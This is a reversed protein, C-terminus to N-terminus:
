PVAHSTPEFNVVITAEMAVAKGNLRCPKWRWQRLAELASSALIPDGKIVQISQPLGQRDILVDVVVTGGIGQQLAQDPYIPQVRKRLKVTVPPCRLHGRARDQAIQGGDALQAVCVWLVLMLWIGRQM